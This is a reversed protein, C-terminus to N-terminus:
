KLFSVCAQKPAQHRAAAKDSVTSVCESTNVGQLSYTDTKRLSETRVASYVSEVEAVCFWDALSTYPLLLQKKRLDTCFV